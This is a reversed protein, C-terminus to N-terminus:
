HRLDVDVALGLLDSRQGPESGLPRELGRVQLDHITLPLSRDRGLIFLWASPIPVGETM